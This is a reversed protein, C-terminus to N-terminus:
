QRGDRKLCAENFRGTQINKYNSNEFQFWQTEVEENLMPPGGPGEAPSAPGTRTVTMRPGGSKLEVVDGVKFQSM